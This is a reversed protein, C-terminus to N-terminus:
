QGDRRETTRALEALEDEIQVTTKPRPRFDLERPALMIEIIQGIAFVDQAQLLATGHFKKMADTYLNIIGAITQAQAQDAQLTLSRFTEALPPKNM